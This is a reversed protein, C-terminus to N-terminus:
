FSYVVYRRRCFVPDGLHPPMVTLYNRRKHTHAEIVGVNRADVLVGRNILYNFRIPEKEPDTCKFTPIPYQNLPRM